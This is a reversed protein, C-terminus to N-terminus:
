KNWSHNSPVNDLALDRGDVENVFVLVDKPELANQDM